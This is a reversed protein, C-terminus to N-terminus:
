TTASPPPSPGSSTPIARMVTELNAEAKKILVKELELVMGIIKPIEGKVYLRFDVAVQDNAAAPPTSGSARTAIRQTLMTEINMHIDENEMSFEVQGAEIDALIM